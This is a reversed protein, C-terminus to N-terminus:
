TFSYFNNIKRITALFPLNDKYRELQNCLVDSGTFIVRHKNDVKIQITTCRTGEKKKSECVRYRLVEVEKNLVDSIPIKDGDFNQEEAFDSFRQM